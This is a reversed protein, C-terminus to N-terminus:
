GALFIVVFNRGGANSPNGIYYNAGVSVNGSIALTAGDKLGKAVTQDPLGGRVHWLTFSIAGSSSSNDISVTLNGSAPLELFQFNPSSNNKYGKIPAASSTVSAVPQSM